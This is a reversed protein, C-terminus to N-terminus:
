SIEKNKEFMTRSSIKKQYSRVPVGDIKAGEPIGIEKGTKYKVFDEINEDVLSILEFPVGIQKAILKRTTDRLQYSSTQIRPEGIVILEDVEADDFYSGNRFKQIDEEKNVFSWHLSLTGEEDDKTTYFVTPEGYQESLVEYFNSLAALKEGVSNNHPYFSGIQIRLFGEKCFKYYFPLGEEFLYDLESHPDRYHSFYKGSIVEQRISGYFDIKNGMKKKLHRALELCDDANSYIESM